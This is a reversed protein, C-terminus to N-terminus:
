YFLELTKQKKVANPKNNFYDWRHYLPALHVNQPREMYTKMYNIPSIKYMNEDWTFIEWSNKKAIHSIQDNFYHVLNSREQQTGYFATNDFFGTKPIRRSEDEIPLLHVLEINCNLDKLQKEYELLLMDIENFPNETRMLHHRVDINGWYGTFNKITSPDIDFDSIENKISKRLVGRLTRGDKRATMYGRKYTSFSHSDGLVLSDTIAPHKQYSVRQSTCFESVKDWPINRWYDDCSSIRNRCLIGYDPMPIDMSIFKTSDPVSAMREYFKASKENAGGFLNLAGNFEMGHYLFVHSFDGWDEGEHLVVVEEGLYDSLQCARLNAWGNKHSYKSDTLKGGILDLAIKSM